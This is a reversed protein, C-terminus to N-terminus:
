STAPTRISSSDPPLLAPDFGAPKWGGANIRLGIEPIRHPTPSVFFEGEADAASLSRIRWRRHKACASKRISQMRRFGAPSRHGASFKPSRITAGASQSFGGLWLHCGAPTWYIADAPRRIQDARRPRQVCSDQPHTSRWRTGAPPLTADAGHDRRIESDRRVLITLGRLFQSAESAVAM